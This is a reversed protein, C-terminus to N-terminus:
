EGESTKSDEKNDFMADAAKKAVYSKNVEIVPIEGFNDGIPFRIAIDFDTMLKGDGVLEEARDFLDCAAAKVINVLKERFDSM